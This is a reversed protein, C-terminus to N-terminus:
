QLMKKLDDVTPKVPNCATGQDALAKTAIDNIAANFDAESVGCDKFQTPVGGLSILNNIQEILYDVKEDESKEYIDKGLSVAVKDALTAYAKKTAADKSNFKIVKPLIIANAVGPHIDHFRSSVYHALSHSVGLFANGSAMGALTAANHMIARGAVDYEQDIISNKFNSIIAIAAQQSYPVTYDNSHISVLSEIANSLAYLSSNVSVNKPMGMAMEPDVIAMNPTLTYTSILEINGNDLTLRAFPTVEDGTCSTTPICVLYKVIDGRILNKHLRDRITDYSGVLQNVNLDPNEYFIRVLKAYNMATGGGLAIIVDPKFIKAENLGNQLDNLSPNKVVQDFVSTTFGTAECVKKVRHAVGLWTLDRDTIIMSRKCIGKLDSLAESVIARKFYVSEPVRFWLLSM